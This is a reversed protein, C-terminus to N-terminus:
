PIVGDWGAMRALLWWMAKALRLAGVEGIHDGDADNENVINWSSDYDLQNDPHIQDHPRITGGDNWDAQYRVGANNYVLIDAYDFLIRTSDELVYERIHANKLERQFGSETGSNDDVPGTSFIVETPISNTVCYTKYTEIAALYTDMCTANGTLSQDGADLGWRGNADGAWHIDFVPDLGGGPTNNWTTEYSWGNIVVTYPNGGDSQGDIVSCYSAVDELWFNISSMWPRGLRLYSTSYAPPDSLYTTSQYTADLSELLTVGHQYGLSHSMGGVWVLMTKVSDIWQQPIDDYLDVVTHDAIIQFSSPEPDEPPTSSTTDPKLFVGGKSLFVGGKNLLSVQGSLYSSLLLFIIVIYKRM